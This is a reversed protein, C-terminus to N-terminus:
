ASMSATSPLADADMRAAPPFLRDTAVGCASAPALPSAGARARYRQQATRHRERHDIM